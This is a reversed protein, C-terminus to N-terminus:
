APTLAWQHEFGNTFRCKYAKTGIVKCGLGKQDNYLTVVGHGGIAYFVEFSDPPNRTDITLTVDTSQGTSVVTRSVTATLDQPNKAPCDVTNGDPSVVCKPGNGARASKLTLVQDTNNTLSYEVTVEAASASTASLPVVLASAAVAVTAALTLVSRPAGRRRRHTPM